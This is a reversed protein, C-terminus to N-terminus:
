FKASCNLKLIIDIKIYKKLNFIRTYFDHIYRFEWFEKQKPSLFVHSRSYTNGRANGLWVDYGADALLFALLLISIRSKRSHFPFQLIALELIIKM